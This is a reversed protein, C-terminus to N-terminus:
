GIRRWRAEIISPQVNNHASGGGVSSTDNSGSVGNSSGDITGQGTENTSYGVTHHHSPIEAITLTHEYEGYVNGVNKTWAPDAINTSLGVSARGEGQRVWSTGVFRVNPDFNAIGFNIVIGVPYFYDVINEIFGEILSTRSNLNQTVQELSGTRDFIDRIILYLQNQQAPALAVGFGEIANALEEQVQNCWSPDLYTADQGSIDANDHFGTKGAGNVNPRANPTDIRKM